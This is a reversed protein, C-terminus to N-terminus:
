RTRALLLCGFTFIKMPCPTVEFMPPAPYSYELWLGLLPHVALAYVILAIGARPGSAAL